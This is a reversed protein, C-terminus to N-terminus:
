LADGKSQILRNLTRQQASTLGARNVSEGTSLQEWLDKPAYQKLAMVVTWFHQQSSLSELLFDQVSQHRIYHKTLSLIAQSHLDQNESALKLQYIAEESSFVDPVSQLLQHSYEDGPMEWVKQFLRMERSQKAVGTLVSRSVEGDAQLVLNAAVVQAQNVSLSKIWLELAAIQKQDNSQLWTQLNPSYVTEAEFVSKLKKIEWWRYTAEALNKVNVVQIGHQPHDANPISLKAQSLKQQNVWSLIKREAVSVSVLPNTEKAVKRLLQATLYTRESRGKGEMLADVKGKLFLERLELTNFASIETGSQNGTELVQWQEETILEAVSQFSALALASIGIVVKFSQWLVRRM